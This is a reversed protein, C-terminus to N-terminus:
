QIKFVIPMVVNTRVANGDSDYGPTWKPADLLATLAAQDLRYDGSSRIIHPYCVSGDKEVVFKAVSTGQVGETRADEPYVIHQAIWKSFANADGGNFGPKQELTYYEIVPEEVYEDEIMEITGPDAIPAEELQAVEEVAYEAEELEEDLMGPDDGDALVDTDVDAYYRSFDDWDVDAGPDLSELNEHTAAAPAEAAKKESNKCSVPLLAAVAAVAAIILSRKM